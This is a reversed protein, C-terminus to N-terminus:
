LEIPEPDLPGSPMCSDTTISKTTVSGSGVSVDRVEVTYQTNNLFDNSTLIFIPKGSLPASCTLVTKSTNGTKYVNIEMTKNQFAAYTSKKFRIEITNKPATTPASALDCEDVREGCNNYLDFDIPLPSIKARISVDANQETASLPELTDQECSLMGLSVICTLIAVFLRKPLNM